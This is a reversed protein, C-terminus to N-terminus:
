RGLDFSKGREVRTSTMGSTCDTLPLAACKRYPEVTSSTGTGTADPRSQVHLARTQLHLQAKSGAAARSFQLSSSSFLCHFHLQLDHQYVTNGDLKALM